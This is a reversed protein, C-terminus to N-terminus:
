RTVDEHKPELLLRMSQLVKNWQDKSHEAMKEDEINDQTITLKTKKHDGMHHEELEFTVRVYNEPRDALGSMSSWYTYKLRKEPLVELVTGKDEYSKGQWEGHWTIPNGEVWDTVMNTNFFYQKVIEPKTLARWVTKVSADISDHVSIELKNAM